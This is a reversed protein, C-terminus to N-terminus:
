HRRRNWARLVVETVGLAIGAATGAATPTASGGLTLALMATSWTAKILLVWDLAIGAKRQLEARRDPRPDSGDGQQQIDM